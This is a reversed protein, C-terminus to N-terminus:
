EGAPPLVTRWLEGKQADHQGTEIREIAYDPLPRIAACAGDAVLGYQPFYFDLNDFGGEAEASYVHLFFRKRVEAPTCPRKRYILDGGRVSVDFGPGGVRPEGVRRGAVVARSPAARKRLRYFAGDALDAALELQPAARLWAEGRGLLNDVAADKFWILWAGDPAAALLADIHEREAAAVADGGELLAQNTVKRLSHYQAAGRNHMSLLLDYGKVYIPGDIPNERIHRLMASAAWRPGAFWLEMEGANAQRILRAHPAAQGATWLCLAAAVAAASLRARGPSRTRERDLFRDLAFLAALLLPAYLPATFRPLVHQTARGLLMAATILVAYTLAFGACVAASRAAASPDALRPRRAAPRAARYALLAAGAALVVAAAAPLEFHTWQWLFGGIERLVQPLSPDYQSPYGTFTGALLVNRLMWLAMPLGGAAAAFAADRARRRLAVGGRCLLLATLFIPAAAGMVRTQGALAAFAAAGVLSRTKGAALFKDAEILMLTVTLIFLPESLAWSSAEVLPLSLALAACGWAALLRSQLRRLLWHGAFFVTLGFFVVNLPGAVDLPDCACLLAVAASVLSYLPLRTSIFGEGTVFGEGALLQQAATIYDMSDDDIGSGYTLGRALALAAAFAAAAFVAAARTALSFGM